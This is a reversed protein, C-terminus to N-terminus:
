TYSPFTFTWVITWFLYPWYNCTYPTCTLHQPPGGRRTYLTSGYHQKIITRTRHPIFQSCIFIFCQVKYLIYILHREWPYVWNTLTYYCTVHTICVYNIHLHM